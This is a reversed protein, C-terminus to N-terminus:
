KTVEEDMKAGCHSCYRKGSKSLDVTYLCNSCYFEGDYVWHAHIIPVAEIPKIKDLEKILIKLLSAKESDGRLELKEKSSRLFSKFENSDILRMGNCIEM